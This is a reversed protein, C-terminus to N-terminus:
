YILAGVIIAVYTSIWLTNSIIIPKDKHAFGYIMWVLAFVVYLIWTTIAISDANKDSYIKAIQPIASAPYAFVVVYLIRDILRM